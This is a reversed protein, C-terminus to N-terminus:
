EVAFRKVWTTRGSLSLTPSLSLSLCAHASNGSRGERDNKRDQRRRCVCGGRQGGLSFCVWLVCCVGTLLLGTDRAHWHCSLAPQRQFEPCRILAFHSIGCVEIGAWPPTRITRRGLIPAQCFWQSPAASRQARLLAAPKPGNEKCLGRLYFYFLQECVGGVRTWGGLQERGFFISFFPVARHRRPSLSRRLILDPRTQRGRHELLESDLTGACL